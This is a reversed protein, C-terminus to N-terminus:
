LPCTPRHAKPVSGKTKAPWQELFLADISEAYTKTIRTQLDVVQRGCAILWKVISGLGNCRDDITLYVVM